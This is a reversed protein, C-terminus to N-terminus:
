KCFDFSKIYLTSVSRIDQTNCDLISPPYKPLDWIQNQNVVERQNHWITLLFWACLLPPFMKASTLMKQIATVTQHHNWNRFNLNKNWIPWANHESKPDLHFHILTLIFLSLNPVTTAAIALTTNEYMLTIMNNGSFCSPLMCLMLIYHNHVAVIVIKSVYNLSRCQTQMHM